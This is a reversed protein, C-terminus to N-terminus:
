IPGNMWSSACFHRQGDLMIATNPETKVHITSFGGGQIQSTLPGKIPFYMHNHLQLTVWISSGTTELGAASENTLTVTM